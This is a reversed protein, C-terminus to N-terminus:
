IIQIRMQKNFYLIFKPVPLFRRTKSELIYYKLNMEPKRERKIRKAYYIAEEYSDYESWYYFTQENKGRGNRIKIIEEMLWLM